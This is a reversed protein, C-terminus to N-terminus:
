EHVYRLTKGWQAVAAVRRDWKESSKWTGGDAAVNLGKYQLDLLSSKAKKKKRCM